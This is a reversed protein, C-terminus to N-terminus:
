DWEIDDLADEEVPPRLALVARALPKSSSESALASGLVLQLKGADGSVVYYTEDQLSPVHKDVVLIMPEEEEKRTKPKWPLFHADPYSIAVLHASAKIPDWSPLAIWSNWPSASRHAGFVGSSSIRPAAELEELQPEVLPLISSKLSSGAEHMDLRIVELRSEAKKAEADDDDDERRHLFADLKAIAKESEAYALGRKLFALREDESKVERSSRYCAFALCDGPSPTFSGWGEERQRRVFDKMSRALERYEKNDMKRSLAYEAASRRERASLIRLEYLEDAGVVDYLSLLDPSMGSARLSARVQSAVVIKNQEVGNMGTAEDIM